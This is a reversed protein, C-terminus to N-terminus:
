RPPVARQWLGSPWRGGHGDRLSPRRFGVASVPALPARGVPVAAALPRAPGTAYPAERPPPTIIPSSGQPGGAEVPASGADLVAGCSGIRLSAEQVIRGFQLSLAQTTSQATANPAFRVVLAAGRIDVSGAGLTVAGPVLTVDARALGADHLADSFRRLGDEFQQRGSAGPAPAGSQFTLGDAGFGYIPRRGNRVDHFEVKWAGTTGAETGDSRYEISSRMFGIHLPGITVDYSGSVQRGALVLGDLHADSTAFSPGSSVQDAFAQGFARASASAKGLGSEAQTKSVPGFDRGDASRGNEPAPWFTSVTTPNGPYVGSTGLVIEGALGEYANSALASSKPLAYLQTEAYPAGALNEFPIELGVGHAAVKGWTRYNVVCRDADATAGTAGAAGAAPAWGAVVLAAVLWRGVRGTM